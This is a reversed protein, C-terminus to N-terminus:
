WLFPLRVLYIRKTVLNVSKLKDTWSLKEFIVAEFPTALSTSISIPRYDSPTKLESKKPIPVLLSINFGRPIFGTSLMLNFLDSLLLALQTHIGCKIIFILFISYINFCFLM